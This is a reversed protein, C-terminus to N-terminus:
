STMWLRVVPLLLMERVNLVSLASISLVSIESSTDHFSALPPWCLRTPVRIVVAELAHGSEPNGLLSRRATHSSGTLDAGSYILKRYCPM